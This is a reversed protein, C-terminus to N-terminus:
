VDTAGKKGYLLFVTGVGFGFFLVGFVISSVALQLNGSIGHGSTCGGALARRLDHDDRRSVGGCDAQDPETRFAIGVHAARRVDGPGRLGAFQGPERFFCGAGADMGLRDEPRAGLFLQQRRAQSPLLEQLGLAATIEFATSIGLPHDASVFAFWSLVGIGAGVVYPSWSKRTLFNVM